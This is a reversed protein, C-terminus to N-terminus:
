QQSIVIPTTGASSNGAIRNNGYSVATGSIGTTNFQIDSNALVIGGDAEVGVDNATIESNDVSLTGGTNAEVGASSNHSMVSRSVVVNNAAGVAVGYTNGVSRVNDLIAQNNSGSSAVVIGAGANNRVITNKIFLFGGTSRADLIGRQGFNAVVCDEINVTAAAQINIGNVGYGGLGDLSLNRLTVVAGPADIVIGDVEGGVQVAGLTGHCDITVAITISVTTGTSYNDPGACNIEGTTLTASLAANLTLCPASQPCITPGTDSGTGSVWTLFVQVAHAPATGLVSLLTAALIALSLTIAKM